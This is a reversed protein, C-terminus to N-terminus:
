FKVAGPIIKFYRMNVYHQLEGGRERYNMMKHYASDLFVSLPAVYRSGDREREQIIVWKVKKLRLELVHDHDLAWGDKGAAAAASISAEGGCWIEGRWRRAVYVLDGNSLAFGTGIVSRGKKFEWLVGKKSWKRQPPKPFKRKATM